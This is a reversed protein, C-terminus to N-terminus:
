RGISGRLLPSPACMQHFHETEQARHMRPLPTPSAGWVYWRRGTAETPMFSRGSIVPQGPMVCQPVYGPLLMLPLPALYRLRSQTGYYGCSKGYPGLAFSSTAFTM